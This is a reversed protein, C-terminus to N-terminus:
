PEEAPDFLSIMKDGFKGLDPFDPLTLMDRRTRERRPRQATAAATSGRGSTTTKKMAPRSDPRLEVADLPLRCQVLSELASVKPERSHYGEVGLGSRTARGPKPPDPM